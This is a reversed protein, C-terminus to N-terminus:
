RGSRLWWNYALRHTEHDFPTPVESQGPRAVPHRLYIAHGTNHNVELYKPIFAFASLFNRPKWPTRYPVDPDYDKPLNEDNWWEKGGTKKKAVKREGAEAAADDSAEFEAVEKEVDVGEESVAASTDEGKIKKIHKEEVKKKNMAELGRQRIREPSDGKKGAGYNISQPNEGKALASYTHYPDKPPLNFRIRNQERRQKPSIYADGLKEQLKKERHSNRVRGHQAKPQGTAFLIKPLSVSFMDGPNLLYQPYKMKQGNVEVFGHVVFQRAQIASSAFMARFVAMDLRRELPAYTQLMYPTEQLEREREKGPVRGNAGSGRGAGYQSGDSEALQGTTMPVVSALSHKFLNKWQQTTLKEGHYKRTLKKATFKQQYITRSRNVRPVRTLNYLSLPQWNQRVIGNKLLYVLNKNTPPPM